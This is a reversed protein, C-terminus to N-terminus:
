TPILADIFLVPAVAFLNGSEMYIYLLSDISYLISM